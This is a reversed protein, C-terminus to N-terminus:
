DELMNSKIMLKIDININLTSTTKVINELIM